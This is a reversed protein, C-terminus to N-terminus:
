HCCGGGDTPIMKALKPSLYPIGLNLGRIILLLGIIVQLAPLFKVIKLRFNASILKPFFSVTLMSPITGFGFGIMFLMGALLGGTVAATSIAMYVFGCPLFGNLFGLTLMSAINKSQLLKGIMVTLKQTVPDFIKQLYKTSRVVKPFLVTLVLLAGVIISLNQQFIPLLLKGGVLGVAIGMLAYSIVRGLHYLTRGFTFKLTSQEGVPLALVIPGCMGICHLSGLIGFIFGTILEM